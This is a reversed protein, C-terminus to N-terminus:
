SQLLTRMNHVYAFNYCLLFNKYNGTDPSLVVVDLWKEGTVAVYVLERKRDIAVAAIFHSLHAKWLCMGVANLCLVDSHYWQSFVLCGNSTGTLSTYTDDMEPLPIRAGRQGDLCYVAIASRSRDAIYLQDETIAFKNYSHVSSDQISWSIRKEGDLSFMQISWHQYHFVLLYLKGKHIQISNVRGKLSILQQVHVGDTFIMVGGSVGLYVIGDQVYVAYCGNGM